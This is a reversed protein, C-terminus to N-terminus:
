DCLMKRSKRKAIITDIIQLVFVIIYAAFSFFSLTFAIDAIVDNRILGFFVYTPGYDAFDPFLVYGLVYTVYSLIVYIKLRVSKNVYSAAFNNAIMFIMAHTVPITLFTLFFRLWGMNFIWSVAVILVCLISIIVYIFKAKNGNKILSVISAIFIFLGTGVGLLLVVLCFVFLLDRDVNALM